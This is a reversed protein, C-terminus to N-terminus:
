LHANGASCSTETVVNMPGTHIREVSPADSVDILINDEKMIAKAEVQEPTDDHKSDPVLITHPEQTIHVNILILYM